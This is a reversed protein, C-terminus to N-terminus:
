LIMKMLYIIPFYCLWACIFFFTKVLFFSINLSPVWPIYFYNLFRRSSFFLFFCITCVLIFNRYFVVFVRRFINKHLYAMTNRNKLPFFKISKFLFNYPILLIAYNIWNLSHQIFLYNIIIKFFYWLLYFIASVFIQNVHTKLCTNLILFLLITEVQNLESLTM